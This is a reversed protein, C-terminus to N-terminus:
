ENLSAVPTNLDVWVVTQPKIFGAERAAQAIKNLSTQTALDQRMTQNQRQLTIAETELKAAETGLGALVNTVILQAAIVFGLVVFTLM